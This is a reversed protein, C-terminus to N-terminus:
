ARLYSPVKRSEVMADKQRVRTLDQKNETFTQYETCGVFAEDCGDTNDGDSAVVTLISAGIKM